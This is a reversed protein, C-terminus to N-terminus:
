WEFEGTEFPDPDEGYTDNLFKDFENRYIWMRRIATAKEDSFWKPWDRLVKWSM